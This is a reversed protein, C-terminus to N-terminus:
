RRVPRWVRFINKNLDVFEFLSAFEGKSGTIGSEEVLKKKQDDDAQETEEILKKM